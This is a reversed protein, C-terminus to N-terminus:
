RYLKAFEAKFQHLGTSPQLPVPPDEEDLLRAGVNDPVKVEDRIWQERIESLKSNELGERIGKANTIVILVFIGM